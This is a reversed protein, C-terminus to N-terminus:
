SIRPQVNPRQRMLNLLPLFLPLELEEDDDHKENQKTIASKLREWDVWDWSECKHPELVRPSDQENERVAVMFLTIYHKGDDPMFDNTATLFEVGSIRLGTEELVERTACEEPTEGFELHGGPLAYTGHGHSNIRKGLLFRPNGIPEQASSLVFVGVGVRVVPSM